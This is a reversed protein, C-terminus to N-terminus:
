QQYKQLKVKKFSNYMIYISYLLFLLGLLFVGSFGIVQYLGVGFLPAFVGRFGVMSLHISQYTAADDRGCFYASGINWLLPMSAAFLGNFSFSILLFYYFRYNGWDVYFPFFETLMMFLIYLFLSAFSIIGFIRPDLRDILKGFFPLTIIAIINYSNKYFAISTYNLNLEQALFLSIVAITLMFAIGYMMFAFEFDRYPKNNKIIDLMSAISNKVSSILTFKNKNREDIYNIKVAKSLLVVSFISLVALVPYIYIYSYNNMDLLLGFLFTTVLMIIKNATTAWSYLKGFNEQSYNNKLISNIIPYVVPTSLYYFLFIMLFIYHFYSLQSEPIEGAPFLIILFLPLRTIIATYILITKKKFKKILENFFIAFLFVVMSFQLLLGLQFDSGELTKIFVFENLVFAGLTIGEFVSYILHIIFVKIENGNYKSKL